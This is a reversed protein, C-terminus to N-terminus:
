LDPISKIFAEMRSASEKKMQDTVHGYVDLTFAATHHGLNEQVTKVDDGSRLANVAYTHRLDHFRRAEMDARALVRQLMRWVGSQTLHGGTETTFVLNKMNGERWGQGLLMRQELQAKKHDKLLQMVSPAPTITRPKDNKLPAFHFAEGKKRPCVLQKSVFITGSDFHVCDWTLGLLEGSRMGSFLAVHFLTQQKHGKIASLFLAIEPTDLPQIDHANIRPLICAETPNTRIYGFKMATQLARHLTGHLNRITKASLGKEQLGNYLHQIATPQLACLKIAGIAPIIHNYVHASYDTATGPKVNGLYEDLWTELWATVTMKSPQTYAGELTIQATIQQLKQLVERQTKGYVSKQIQKGTGPNRGLTYRGEWMGNGRRRISGGGQIRRASKGPM